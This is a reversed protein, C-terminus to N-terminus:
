RMKKGCKGCKKRMKGCKKGIGAVANGGGGGAQAMPHPRFHGSMLVVVTPLSNPPKAITGTLPAKPSLTESLPELSVGGGVRM